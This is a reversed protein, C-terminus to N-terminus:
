NITVYPESGLHNHGCSRSADFLWRSYCNMIASSFRDLVNLCTREWLVKRPITLLPFRTDRTRCVSYGFRYGAAAVNEVVTSNFRGDPYAFHRISTKLRQELTLRSGILESVARGPTEQTLLTHSRTHSGITIGADRMEEIMAWNLPLMEDFVSRDIPYQRELCEIINEVEDHSHSTLLSTMKALPDPTGARSLLLYLRDYIQPRSTGVLDTVVFVASPIGKRKLMPYAHHYFDSYGDDFTIAAAPRRFESGSELVKGIEDLSIMEFRSALWDLHRELMRTSILLSPISNRSSREFDQVVRHYGVIFPMTRFNRVGAGSLSYACAVATKALKRLM